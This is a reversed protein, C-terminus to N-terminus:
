LKKLLNGIDTPMFIVIKQSPEHSIDLITQLTRLQIAVPSNALIEAARAMNKASEVEGESAIITARKEREKEAEVAMARKMSEPLEIQQIKIQTIQIGWEQTDEDVVKRIEQSIKERQTLISDLAMGGVVDRIAGQTYNFVARMLNEIKTTAYEPNIIKYFVSTDVTVPINDRTITDQKAIDLTKIRLDIVVSTEILPIVFVIGPGITRKYRGFRFVILRKYEKVTKFGRLLTVVLIFIM